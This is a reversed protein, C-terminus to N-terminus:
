QSSALVISRSPERNPRTRLRLDFTKREIDELLAIGSFFLVLVLATAMGAKDVEKIPIMERRLLFLTSFKVIIEGQFFLKLLRELRFVIGDDIIYITRLLEKLAM